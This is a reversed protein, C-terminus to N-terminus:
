GAAKALETVKVILNNTGYPIFDIKFLQTGSVANPLTDGDYTARSTLQIAVPSVNSFSWLLITRIEDTPLPDLNVTWIGSSGTLQIDWNYDALNLTTSGNPAIQTRTFKLKNKVFETNAIKTSNDSKAPTVTTSTGTLAADTFLEAKTNALTKKRIFGDGSDYFYNAAATNSVANGASFWTSYLYGNADRVAITNPAAILSTDYGDLKDADLGSGAGDNHENWVKYWAGWIDNNQKSRFFTGGSTNDFYQWIWNNSNNHTGGDSVYVRLMGYVASTTGTPNHLMNSAAAQYEGATLALDFDNSPVMGLYRMETRANALTKRQLYNDGNDYIYNAAPSNTLDKSMNIAKVAISQNADRTVLTLAVSSIAAHYDDVSDANLNPVKTISAIEMPPTGTAITSKLKTGQIAAPFIVNKDRDYSQVNRKGAPYPGFWELDYLTLGSPQTSNVISFTIRFKNIAGAITNVAFMGHPITIHGPWNFANGSAVTFWTSEGDRLTEIKFNTSNGGTTCYCYFNTLYIYGTQSAQWTLRYYGSNGVGSLPIANLVVSQGEGIVLDKLQDATARSSDVWDIGNESEEQLYPPTFRVKNTMTGNIMAIDRVNMDTSSSKVTNMAQQTEKLALPADILAKRLNAVTIKRKGASTSELFSFVDDDTFTTEPLLYSTQKGLFTGTIEPNVLIFVDQSQKYILIYWGNASM